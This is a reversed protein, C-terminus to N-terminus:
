AWAGVFADLEELFTTHGALYRARFAARDWPEPPEDWGVGARDLEALTERSWTGQPIVIVSAGCLRAVDDMATLEDFSYVVEVRNLLEALAHRDQRIAHTIEVGSVDRTKSGKGVYFAAGSRPLGLDRYIDTEVAPLMLRPVGPYFMRHYAWIRETPAYARDGGILGPRNLVWRAVRTGGLPNGSVVEPYVVVDDARMAGDWVPTELDPSTHPTTVCADEGRRRLEHCFRHLVKGGGSAHLYPFAFVVFRM